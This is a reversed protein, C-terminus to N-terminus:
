LKLVNLGDEEPPSYYPLLAFFMERTDTKAREPQEKARKEIRSLCIEDEVDLFYLRHEAEVEDSIAKLWARQKPTNAPFDLVVDQGKVLMAQVLAKVLPKLRGSYTAYDAVSQIEGPYLAGLWEDESLLVAKTEEAITRAATSKGSGMKGCFFHLTSKTM